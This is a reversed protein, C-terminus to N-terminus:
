RKGAHKSKKKQPPPKENKSFSFSCLIPYMLLHPPYPLLQPLPFDDLYIFVFCKIFFLPVRLFLLPM